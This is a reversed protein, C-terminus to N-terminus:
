RASPDFRRAFAQRLEWGFPDHKKLWASHEAYLGRVHADLDTRSERLRSLEDAPEECYPLDELVRRMLAILRRAVSVCWDTAVCTREVAPSVHRAGSTSTALACIQRWVRQLEDFEAVYPRLEVARRYDVDLNEHLCRVADREAQALAQAAAEHEYCLHRPWDVYRNCRSDSCLPSKRRRPPM